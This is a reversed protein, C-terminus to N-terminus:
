APCTFGDRKVWKYAFGKKILVDGNNYDDIGWGDKLFERVREAQHSSCQCLIREDSEKM